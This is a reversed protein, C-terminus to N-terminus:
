KQSSDREGNKEGDKETTITLKSLKTSEQEIIYYRAMPFKQMNETLTKVVWNCMQLNMKVIMVSKETQHNQRQLETEESISKLKELADNRIKSESEEQPVISDKDFIDHASVQQSGNIMQEIAAADNKERITESSKASTTGCITRCSENRPKKYKEDLCEQIWRDSIELEEHERMRKKIESSIKELRMGNVEFERAIDNVIEKKQWKTQFRKVYREFIEDYISKTNGDQSM